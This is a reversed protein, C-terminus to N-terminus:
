NVGYREIALRAALYNVWPTDEYPTCGPGVMYGRSGALDIATKVHKYIQDCSVKNFYQEENIGGILCKNTVERAENLTPGAWRDHWNICNGPYKILRNFMSAKAEGPFTHIHVVNFWTVDKFVDFLKLDYYEGFEDYENDKMFYYNALQTSFFFGSIGLEINLKMFSITTETIKELATHVSKPNEKMDKFLREGALKYATTLPSFITQMVPADTKIKKLNEFVKQALQVQKGYTGENAKLVKIKDWDDKDKILYEIVEAPKNVQNYKKIKIGYDECTYLGFPMLKIFDIDVQNLFSVQKEALKTIDQDVDSHHPWIGIPIRDVEQFNIARRVRETKTLREMIM